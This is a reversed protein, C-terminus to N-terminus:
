LYPWWTRALLWSSLRLHLLGKHQCLDSQLSSWGAEPMWGCGWLDPWQNKAWLRAWLCMGSLPQFVHLSELPLTCLQNFFFFVEAKIYFAFLSISWTLLEFHEKFWSWESHLWETWRRGSAGCGQWGWTDWTLLSTWNLGPWRPSWWFRYTFPGRSKVSSTTQWCSWVDAHNEEVEM